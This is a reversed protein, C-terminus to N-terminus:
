HCMSVIHTLIVTHLEMCTRIHMHTELLPPIATSYQEIIKNLIWPGSCNINWGTSPEMDKKESLIGLNHPYQNSYVTFDSDARNAFEFM